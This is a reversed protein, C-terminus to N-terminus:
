FNSVLTLIVDSMLQQLQISLCSSVLCILTIKWGSLKGSRISWTVMYVLTCPCFLSRAPLPAIASAPLGTFCPPKTPKLHIQISVELLFLNKIQHDNLFFIEASMLFVEHGHTNFCARFCSHDKGSKILHDHCKLSQDLLVMCFGM